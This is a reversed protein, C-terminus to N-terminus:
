EKVEYGFEARRNLGYKGPDSSILYMEEEGYSNCEMRDPNIGCDVLYKMCILARHTGLALNYEYTGIPCAFGWVKLTTKPNKHMEICIDGLIRISEWNLSYSDFEFMAREPKDLLLEVANLSEQPIEKPVQPIPPVMEPESYIIEPLADTRVKKKSCFIMINLCLFSGLVIMYMTRMAMIAEYLRRM